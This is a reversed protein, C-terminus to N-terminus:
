DEKRQTTTKGELADYAQGVIIPAFLEGILRKILTIDESEIELEKDAEYVREALKCRKYSEVGNARESQHLTLLARTIIKRLNIPQGKEDPIEEGDFDTYNHDDLTIKM